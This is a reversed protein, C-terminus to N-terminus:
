SSKPELSKMINSLSSGQGNLQSIAKEAAGFQITLSKKLAAMRDLQANISKELSNISNTNGNIATQVVGSISDSLTNFTTELSHAIGKKDTTKGSLLAQLDSLSKDLKESLIANDISMRGSSDRGIGIEALSKFAGGNDTSDKTVISRVQEQIARLTPDGALVGSPKGGTGTKYQNAIFDQVDNYAKAFANLKNTISVTDNSVTINASGVGALNFTVGTIADTVSNTSRSISLGNVKLSADLTSHDPVPGVPNISGMNLTAGAGTASTEVLEIRNASGTEKSNLVLKYQPTGSSAVNVIAATVGADAANIKDRLKELTNESANITFTKPTEFSSGGKKLEFTATQFGGGGDSTLFSATTSNFATSAEAYKTALRTVEVNITGNTAASTATASVYNSATSTASRNSGLNQDTLAKAAEKLSILLGNLSKLATNRNTLSDKKAQLQNLPRSREALIAETIKSFDIGSGLGSFTLASAM